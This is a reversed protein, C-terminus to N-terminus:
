SGSDVWPSYVQLLSEQGPGNQLCEVLALLSGEFPQSSSALIPISLREQLEDELEIQNIGAPFWASPLYGIGGDLERIAKLMSEPDPAIWAKPTTEPLNGPLSREFIERIGNGEPYTWVQIPGSGLLGGDPIESWFRTTAHFISQLSKTTLEVGRDADSSVIVVIKESALPIINPPLSPQMGLTIFLDFNGENISSPDIEEIVLPDHLNTMCAQVGDRVPLAGTTVGIHIIGGPNIPTSPNVPTQIATCGAGAIVISLFLIMHQLPRIPRLQSRDNHRKIPLNWIM